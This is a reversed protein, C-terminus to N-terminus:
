NILKSPVFSPCIGRGELKVQLTGFHNLGGVKAFAPPSPDREGSEIEVGGVWGWNGKNKMKLVM